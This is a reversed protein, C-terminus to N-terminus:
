AKAIWSVHCLSVMTSWDVALLLLKTHFIRCFARFIWSIIRLIILNVETGFWMSECERHSRKSAAVQWWYEAGVLLTNRLHDSQRRSAHLWRLLCSRLFLCVSNNTCRICCTLPWRHSRWLHDAVRTLPAVSVSFRDSNTPPKMKLRLTHDTSLPRYGAFQSPLSILCFFELGLFRAVHGCM